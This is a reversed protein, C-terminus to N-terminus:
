RTRSFHLIRNAWSAHLLLPWSFIPNPVIRITGYELLVFVICNICVLGTLSIRYYCFLVAYLEILYPEWLSYRDLIGIFFIFHCGTLISRPVSLSSLTVWYETIPLLIFAWYIILYTAISSYYRLSTLIVLFSLIFYLWKLLTVLLQRSATSNLSSSGKVLTTFIGKESVEKM